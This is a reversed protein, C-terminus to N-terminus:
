YEDDRHPHDWKPVSYPLLYYYVNYSSIDSM